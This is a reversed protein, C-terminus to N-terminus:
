SAKWCGRGGCCRWIHGRWSRGRGDLSRVVVEEQRRLVVDGSEEVVVCKGGIKDVRRVASKLVEAVSAVCVCHEVGNRTNGGTAVPERVVLAHVSAVRVMSWFVAKETRESVINGREGSERVVFGETREHHLATCVPVRRAGEVVVLLVVRVFSEANKEGETVGDIEVSEAVDVRVYPWVAGGGVGSWVPLEEAGEDPLGRFPGIAKVEYDFVVDAAGEADGNRPSAVRRDFCEERVCKPVFGQVVRGVSACVASHVPAAGLFRDEYTLWLNQDYM